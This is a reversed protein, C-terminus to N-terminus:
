FGNLQYYSESTIYDKLDQITIMKKQLRNPYCDTPYCDKFLDEYVEEDNLCQSSQGELVTKTYTATAVNNNTVYCYKYEYKCYGSVTCPLIVQRDENGIFDFFPETQCKSTYVKFVHPSNLPPNGNNDCPLLEDLLDFKNYTIAIAGVVYDMLIEKKLNFGLKCFCPSPDYWDCDDGLVIDGFAIERDGNSLTRYCWSYEAWCKNDAADYYIKIKPSGEQWPPTNNVGAPLKCVAFSIYSFGVILSLVLIIKKM